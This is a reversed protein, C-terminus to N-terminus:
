HCKPFSLNISIDEWMIKGDNTYRVKSRSFGRLMAEETRTTGDTKDIFTINFTRLTNVASILTELDDPALASWTITTDGYKWGAVDAKTDGMMTTYEAVIFPVRSMTFKDPYPLAQGNITLTGETAM